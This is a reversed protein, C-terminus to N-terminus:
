TPSSALLHIPLEGLASVVSAECDVFSQFPGTSIGRWDPPDEEGGLECWRWGQSRDPLLEVGFKLWAAIRKNLAIKEDRAMRWEELAAAKRTAYGPQQSPARTDASNRWRGDPYHNSVYGSVGTPLNVEPVYWGVAARGSRAQRYRFKNPPREDVKFM